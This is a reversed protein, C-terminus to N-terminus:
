GLNNTGVLTFGSLINRGGVTGLTTTATVVGYGLPLGVLNEVYEYEIDLTCRNDSSGANIGVTVQFLTGAFNANSTFHWSGWPRDPATRISMAGPEAQSRSSCHFIQEKDNYMNSDIDAGVPTVTVHTAFNAESIAWVRVTRIRWCDVYPVAAGTVNTVVLFQDHGSALTFAQNVVASSQNYRRWCRRTPALQHDPPFPPCFMLRAGDLPVKVLTGAKKGKNKKGKKVLTLTMPSKVHTVLPSPLSIVESSKSIPLLPKRDSMLQLFCFVIKMM